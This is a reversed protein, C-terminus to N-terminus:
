EKERERDDLIREATLLVERVYYFARQRARHWIFILLTLAGIGAIIKQGGTWAFAAGWIMSAGLSLGCLLVLVLLARHYAYLTNFRRARGEDEGDTMQMAYIFLSENATGAGVIDSLKGRIRTASEAPLYRKLGGSLATDSPRGGWSKYILPEIQSAIAQILQGVFVALATLLVVRFADPFAPWAGSAVAPFCFPIWGLVLTGPVLVGLLDYADFKNTVNIEGTRLNTM